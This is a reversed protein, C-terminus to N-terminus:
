FRKALAIIVDTETPTLQYYNAALKLIAKKFEDGTVGRLDELQGEISYDKAAVYGEEYLLDAMEQRDFSSMAYYIDDMELEVEECHNCYTDFRLM